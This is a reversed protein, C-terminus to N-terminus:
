IKNCAFLLKVKEFLIKRVGNNNNIKSILLSLIRLIIYENFKYLNNINPNIRLYLLINDNCISIIRYILIASQENNAFFEFNSILIKIFIIGSDIGWKKILYFIIYCGNSENLIKDINSHLAKILKNRSFSKKNYEILRKIVHVGNKNKLLKKINKCLIKTLNQREKEPFNQIINQILHTGENDLSMELENGKIYNIIKNREEDSEMVEIIRQIAIVGIENKSVTIFYDKILNLIKIRYHRQSKIYLNQFFYNGYKNCIILEFNNNLEKILYHIIVDCHQNLFNSIIKNGEKSCIYDFLTINLKECFNKFSVFNEEEQKIYDINNLSININIFNNNIIINLNKKINNIDNLNQALNNLIGNNRKIMDEKMNFDQFKNIDNIDRIENSNLIIDNIGTKSDQNMSKKEEGNQSWFKKGNEFFSKKPTELFNNSSKSNPFFNIYNFPEIEEFADITKNSISENLHSMSNKQNSNNSNFISQDFNQFTKNIPTNLNNIEKPINELSLYDKNFMSSSLSAKEEFSENTKM